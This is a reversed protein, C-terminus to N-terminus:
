SWKVTEIKIIFHCHNHEVTIRFHIVYVNNM